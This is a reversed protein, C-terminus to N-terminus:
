EAAIPAIPVARTAPITGCEPCRDPTARLDYGCTPCRGQRLARRRRARAFIWIAPAVLFVTVIFWYPVVVATMAIYQVDTAPDDGIGLSLQRGKAVAFGWREWGIEDLPYETCWYVPPFFGVPFSEYGWSAFYYGRVVHVGGIYSRVTWGHHFGYRDDTRYSRVWLVATAVCLLLSMLAAVSFAHRKMGYM